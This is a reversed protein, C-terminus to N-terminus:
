TRYVKCKDALLLARCVSNSHQAVPNTRAARLSGGHAEVISRCISLGIGMGSSKTPSSLSLFGNLLKQLSGPGTDSVTVLM